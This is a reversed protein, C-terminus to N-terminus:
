HSSWERRLEIAHMECRKHCAEWPNGLTTGRRIAGAFRCPPIERGLTQEVRAICGDLGEKYLMQERRTPPSVDRNECRDICTFDADEDGPPRGKRCALWREGETPAQRCADVADRLWAEVEESRKGSSATADGGEDVSTGADSVAVTRPAPPASSGGTVRSQSGGSACAVPAGALCILGCLTLARLAALRSRAVTM